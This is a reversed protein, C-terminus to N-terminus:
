YIEPQIQSIGYGLGGGLAAVLVIVWWSRGLIATYHRLQVFDNVTDEERLVLNSTPPLSPPAVGRWAEGGRQSSPHNNRSLGCTHQAHASSDFRALLHAGLLEM